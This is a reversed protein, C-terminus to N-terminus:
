LFRDEEEETMRLWGWVLLCLCLTVGIEMV